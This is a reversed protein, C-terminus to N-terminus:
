QGVPINPFCITVDEHNSRLISLQIAFGVLNLCGAFLHDDSLPNKYYNSDQLLHEIFHYHDIAMKKYVRRKVAPTFLKVTVCSTGFRTQCM